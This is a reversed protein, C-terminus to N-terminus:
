RRIQKAAKRLRKELQAHSSIRKAAIGIWRDGAKIRMDPEGAVVDYIGAHHVLATVLLEFQADRAGTTRVDEEPLDRGTLALNLRKPDIGSVKDLASSIIYFELIARHSEALRYAFDSDRTPNITSRHTAREVRDISSLLRSGPQLRAGFRSLREVALKGARVGQVDNWVFQM